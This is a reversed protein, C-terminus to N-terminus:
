VFIVDGSGVVIEGIAAAEYGAGNLDRVVNGANRPICALLGGSTQPDFMLPANKNWEPWDFSKANEDFLSSRVGAESLDIAPALIPVNDVKLEASVGSSQCINRLHGALGFGTVDTMATAKASCLIESARQQSQMMAEYALMTALGRAVGQMSAAMIVGTGLPKTLILTDGPQAGSISIPKSKTEGMISFGISFEAGQSTHGGSIAVGAEAAVARASTMLESLFREAMIPSQRPITLSALIIRPEAGMAWIDGLAHNLAIRAMIVPDDTFARIHDTTFVQFLDGTRIVAADDPASALMGNIVAQGVKSGCGACLMQEHKSATNAAALEESRSSQAMAKPPQNLKGMFKADIDDKLKWFRPATATFGRKEALANKKGLSILKLYDAQPRYRKMTVGGNLAARLNEFLIPAQRVAYVGAKARPTRVMEACDGVAFIDADRTQLFSNIPLFGAEDTLGTATLWQYPTTGATGVVFDASILTGSDLLVGNATIETPLVNELLVVDHEALATRMKRRPKEGLVSLAEGRDILTIEFRRNDSHLAFAMAMAVESGAVGAGIIAIKAPTRRARYAKWRSAFEGLPKAPVGFESFGKLSPLTSTIGIDISAIDYAIPPRDSVTITKAIRDFGTAKACVLRAGARRCLRDLNIDLEDRSYHGAIYGPLMGSYAATPGPNIVTVRAGPLPNMAWQNLVLAHTHGGGILVLDRTLTTHNSIM